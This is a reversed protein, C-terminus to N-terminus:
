CDFDSMLHRTLQMPISGVSTPSIRSERSLHRRYAESCNLVKKSNITKWSTLAAELNVISMRRGNLDLETNLNKLLPTSLRDTERSLSHPRSGLNGEASSVQPRQLNSITLSM